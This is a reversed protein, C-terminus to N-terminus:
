DWLFVPRWDTPAPHMLQATNHGFGGIILRILTSRLLATAALAGMGRIKGFTQRGVHLFVALIEGRQLFGVALLDIDTVQLLLVDGLQVRHGLFHLDLIEAGHALMLHDELDQAFVGLVTAYENGVAHQFDQGFAEAEQATRMVIIQGTRLIYVHRRRLNSTEIQLSAVLQLAADPRGLLLLFEEREQHNILNAIFLGLLSLVFGM